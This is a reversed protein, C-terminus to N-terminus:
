SPVCAIPFCLRPSPGYTTPTAPFFFTENVTLQEALARLEESGSPSTTLRKVYADFRPQWEVGYTSAPCRRTISGGDEYHLGLRRVVIM